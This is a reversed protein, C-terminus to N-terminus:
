KPEFPMRVRKYKNKNKKFERACEWKQPERWIFYWHELVGTKRNIRAEHWDWPFTGIKVKGYIYPRFYLDLKKILEKM